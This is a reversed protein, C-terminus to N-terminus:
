RRGPWLWLSIRSPAIECCMPQKHKPPRPALPAAQGSHWCQTGGEQAACSCLWSIPFESSCLHLLVARDRFLRSGRKSQQSIAPLFIMM